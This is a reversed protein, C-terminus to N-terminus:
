SGTWRGGDSSIQRGKWQITGRHHGLASLLLVFLEQWAILPAVLWSLWWCCRWMLRCYLMFVTTAMVGVAVSLWGIVGWGYVASAVIMVQPLVVALLLGASLMVGWASGGLRPFLLRTSTEIQSRWKKEYHLGLGPTSIWLQYKGRRAVATAIRREPQVDDAWHSLGGLEELLLTRRIVWASSATGPRGRGDLLLEWFQRLTGFWTSIRWVDYRQPLVSAMAMDDAVVRAMLQRITGPAVRTDVDLFLVFRGSAETLLQELAYNKGLWGEPLPKGPVFRVGAHAFARILHPTDDTSDDDLVIVELKPYDSALVRELCATMAHTENRVPICVSVTPWEEIPQKIPQFRRQGARLLVVLAVFSAGGGIALLQYLILTIM